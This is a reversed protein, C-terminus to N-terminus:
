TTRSLLQAQTQVHRVLSQVAPGAHERWIVGIELMPFGKLPLVRIGPLFSKGPVFVSLGVGRGDAVYTEVLELSSARIRFPWQISRKQLEREFCVSV